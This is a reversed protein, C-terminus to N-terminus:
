LCMALEIEKLARKNFEASTGFVNGFTADKQKITHTSYHTVANFFGWMNSGLDTMESEISNKFLEIKNTKNTSLEQTHDVEFIRNTLSEILGKDVHIKAMKDFSQYLENKEMNYYHYTQVMQEMSINANKTHRIVHDKMIKSFDNTCRILKTSTGLFIGTSGDHSNGIVIYDNIQNKGINGEHVAPKVFGLIRKGKKFESFGEVSGGSVKAIEHTVDMIKQNNFVQYSNKHIHVVENNDSRLLAKFNPVIANEVMLEKEQINWDLTKQLDKM